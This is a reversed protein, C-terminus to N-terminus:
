NGTTGTFLSCKAALRRRRVVGHESRRMTSHTDREIREENRIRVILGELFGVQSAMKDLWFPATIKKIEQAAAPDIQSLLGVVRALWRQYENDSRIEEAANILEELKEALANPTPAENV